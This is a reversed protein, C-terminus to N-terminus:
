FYKVKWKSKKNPSIMKREWVFRERIEMLLRGYYNKGEEFFCDKCDCNHWFNDHNQEKLQIWAHKTSLLIKIKNEDQKFYSYLIRGMLTVKHHESFSDESLSDYAEQVSKWKSGFYNFESQYNPDLCEYEGSFSNLEGSIKMCDHAIIPLRPM